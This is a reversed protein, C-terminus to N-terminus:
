SLVYPRLSRLIPSFEFLDFLFIRSQKATSIRVPIFEVDNPDNQNVVKIEGILTVEKEMPVNIEVLISIMGDAPSLYTGDFPSFTWIGWNPYSVVTWNLLSANDGANWLRFMEDITVGPKVNSWTIEGDVMLDEQSPLNVVITKRVSSTHGKDDQVVLLVSYNGPEDYTYSAISNYSDFYGDENFDWSRYTIEGDCDSSLDICTVTLNESIWSFNVLPWGISITKNVESWLYGYRARHSVTFKGTSSYTYQTSIGVDDVIGDDDFDWSHDTGFDWTSTFFVTRCDPGIVYTFNLPSPDLSQVLLGNQQQDSVHEGPIIGYSASLLGAMMLFVIMSRKWMVSM